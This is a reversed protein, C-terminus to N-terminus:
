GSEGRSMKGAPEPCEAGLSALHDVRDSGVGCDISALVVRDIINLLEDSAM